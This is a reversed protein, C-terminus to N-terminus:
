LRFARRRSSAPKPPSLSRALRATTAPWCGPSRRPRAAPSPRSRPRPQAGSSPWVAARAWRKLAADEIAVAAFFPQWRRSRISGPAARLDFLFACERALINGATGGAVTGITLTTEKPHFPSQPDAERKLREAIESLVGMLRVAAMVASVGLDTRSSHAEKGTVTVRFTRIGKHGNVAEMSTPEGVIVAAPRPVQAAIERIM